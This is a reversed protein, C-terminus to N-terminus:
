LPRRDFAAAHDVAAPALWRALQVLAVVGAVEVGARLVLQGGLASRSWGVAFPGVIIVSYSQLVAGLGRRARMRSASFPTACSVTWTSRRWPSCSPSANRRILGRQVTGTNRVSSPRRSVSLAPM